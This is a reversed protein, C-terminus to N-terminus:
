SSDLALVLAKRRLERVLVGAFVARSCNAVVGRGFVGLRVRLTLSPCSGSVALSAACFEREFVRVRLDEVEDSTGIDLTDLDGERNPREDEFDKYSSGRAIFCFGIGLAARASVLFNSM